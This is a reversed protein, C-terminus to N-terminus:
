ARGHNDLYGWREEIRRTRWVVASVAWTLFFLGVILLTHAARISGAPLGLAHRKPSTPITSM